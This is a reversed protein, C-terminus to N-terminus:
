RQNGAVHAILEANTMQTVSKQSTGPGGTGGTGTNSGGGSNQKPKFLYDNEQDEAYAKVITTISAGDKSVWEGKDNRVLMDKLDNFASKAAKDNKFPLGNLHERLQVDRSLSTVEARSATLADNAEKLRLELAERHKGEAELRKLEDEQNKKNLADIDAQLKDRAAYANDLNTKVGKLQEAVLGDIHKQLEPSIEIKNQTGGEGGGEGGKNQDNTNKNEDSM